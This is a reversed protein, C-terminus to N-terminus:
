TCLSSPQAAGTLALLTNPGWQDREVWTSRLFRLPTSPLVFGFRFAGLHFILDVTRSLACLARGKEERGAEAAGAERVNWRTAMAVDGPVGSHEGTGAGVWTSWQTHDKRHWARQRCHRERM